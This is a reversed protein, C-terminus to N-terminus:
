HKKLDALVAFPSAKSEQQLGAAGANGPLVCDAHRPVLPLALLVEDEVLSLLSLERSAPIADFDDSELEEEPWAAEDAGAAMLLLRRDVDCAVDVEALCRQCRMQLVGQVRVQLGPQGAQLNDFTVGQVSCDLSGATSLLQDALRPLRSLAVRGAVRAGEGAFRLSDVVAGAFENEQDQCSM